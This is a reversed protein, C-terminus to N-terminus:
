NETKGRGKRDLYMLLSRLESQNESDMELFSAGILLSDQEKIMKVHRAKLKINIFNYQHIKFTIDFEDDSQMEIKYAPASLQCGGLSLDRIEVNVNKAIGRCYNIVCTHSTGIPMSIRFDNRRQLQFISDPLDILYEVKSNNLFSKFFYLDDKFSFTCIVQENSFEFSHFKSISFQKLNKISNVRTKIFQNNIKITLETRNHEIFNVLEKLDLQSVKYYFINSSM